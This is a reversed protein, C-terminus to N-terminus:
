VALMRGRRDIEASCHSCTWGGRLFQRLSAPKRMKPLDAGCRPCCPQPQMRVWLLVVGGGALAGGISAVISIIWFMPGEM